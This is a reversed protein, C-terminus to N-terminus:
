EYVGWWGGEMYVQVDYVVHVMGLEVGGLIHDALM